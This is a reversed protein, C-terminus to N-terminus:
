KVIASPATRNTECFIFRVRRPLKDLIASLVTAVSEASQDQPVVYALCDFDLSIPQCNFDVRKSHFPRLILCQVLQNHTKTRDITPQPLADFSSRFNAGARPMTVSSPAGSAFASM